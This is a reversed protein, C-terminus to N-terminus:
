QSEHIDTTIRHALTEDTLLRGVLATLVEQKTLRSRGLAAATENLWNQLAHHQAPPLDVTVRVPKVLPAPVRPTPHRAATNKDAQRAALAKAKAALEAARTGTM